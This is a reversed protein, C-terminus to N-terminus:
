PAPVRGKPDDALNRLFKAAMARAPPVNFVVFHGDSGAKPEFQALAGSARGGALNGTLGEAPITVDPLGAWGAEPFPRTGPAVRPLGIAISLAEIGHPPTYNDGSGDPSVGETMLISKPAGGRRPSGVINRAYHLPDSVDLLTQALSIMPHAADFEGAREPDNLQLLTKVAGAVSPQPKTKEVLTIALVAGAGSLVGGRVSDDAALFVPGNLGGQSHGFFMVRSPDFRIETQTRSVGQPVTIKTETFLRAQQVVDIASQRTNCRAALPNDFNFFLLQITGERQPDSEPPAGPRTGHFIQDVGMAALCEGALAAATRDDIFSRYDGGTGHAYLVIPYGNAPMPCSAAKPVTLSFRLDFTSQVKPKGNEFVFTGGDSPKAYPITGSQYNPSPGYTGEYADYTTAEEKATWGKASPAPVNARVDDALAYTEATPDGTTFVTLHAIRDKPIGAAALEAIAPGFAARAKESAATAPRTGLVEELEKSPVIPLDRECRVDRTVVVAYRTKTRLAAGALPTVALTSSPWYAGEDRQYRLRALQRKGREPSAPDVDVLQVSADPRTGAPPDAPLTEPKIPASFRLYVSATPSFGDFLGETAKIYQALLPVLFPNPYGRYDPAGNADRRADSPFPHDFFALGNLTDPTGGLVFRSETPPQAEESSSSCAGSSVILTAAVLATLRKPVPLAPFSRRM